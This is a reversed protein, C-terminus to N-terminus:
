KVIKLLQILEHNYRSRWNGNESIQGYIKREFIKLKNEETKTLIWTESGYFIVPRL